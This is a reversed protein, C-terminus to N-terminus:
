SEGLVRRIRLGDAATKEMVALLAGDEGRFCLLGEPLASVEIGGELWRGQEGRSLFQRVVPGVVCQPLHALIRDLPILRQLLAERDGRLVEGFPLCSSLECPGNRRRVLEGLHSPVGCALLLDRCLTRLYTGKGCRVLFRVQRPQQELVTLQHIRVTREPAEVLTGRRALTYLRVGDVKLASFSPPRQRIDGLFRPLVEALREPAVVAERDEYLVNGTRDFSDTDTGILALAEYEKEAEELFPILKTAEELYCCLVGEAFPDLTGDHGASGIGFSRRLKQLADNSSLGVPKHLPLM